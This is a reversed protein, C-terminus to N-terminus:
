GPTWLLLVYELACCLSHRGDLRLRAQQAAGRSRGMRRTKCGKDHAEGGLICWLRAAGLAVEAADCQVIHELEQGVLSKSRMRTSNPAYPEPRGSM